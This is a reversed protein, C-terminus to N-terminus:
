NRILPLGAVLKVAVFTGVAVAVLIVPLAWEVFITTHWGFAAIEIAM